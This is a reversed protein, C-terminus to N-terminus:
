ARYAATGEEHSYTFVGVHDFEVATVFACLEEFEEETEGPFGVILTTRLTVEPLRARIRDLLREYTAGRGSAADPQLM